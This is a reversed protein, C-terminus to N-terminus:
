KAAARAGAMGSLLYTNNGGVSFFALKLGKKFTAKQSSSTSGPSAASVGSGAAILGAVAALAAVLAFGRRLRIHIMQGTAGKRCDHVYPRRRARSRGSWPGSASSRLGDPSWLLEDAGAELRM